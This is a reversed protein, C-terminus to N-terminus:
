RSLAIITAVGSAILTTVLLLTRVGLRRLWRVWPMAGVLAFVLILFWIPILLIGAGLYFRGWIRSPYSVGMNALTRIVKEQSQVVRVGPAFRSKTGVVLSIAGPATGVGVFRQSSAFVVLEDEWWFSRVWLAAFLFCVALFILSFAAGIPNAHVATSVRNQM